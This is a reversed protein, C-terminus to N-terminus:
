IQGIGELDKGDDMWVLRLAVFASEKLGGGCVMDLWDGTKWGGVRKYLSNLERDSRCHL